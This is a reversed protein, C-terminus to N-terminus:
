GRASAKSLEARDPNPDIKSLDGLYPQVLDKILFLLYSKLRRSEKFEEGFLGKWVKSLNFSSLVTRYLTEPEGALAGIACFKDEVGQQDDTFTNMGTIPANVLTLAFLVPLIPRFVKGSGFAFKLRQYWTNRLVLRLYQIASTASFWRRVVRSAFEFRAALGDCSLLEKFPVPSINEKDLFTQNAFNVLSSSVYSKALKITVGYQNNMIDYYAEAVERDGIVM